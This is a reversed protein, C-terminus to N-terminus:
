AGAGALRAMAAATLRALAYLVMSEEDSPDHYEAWYAGIAAAGRNGVPVMQLSKVFTRRYIDQPIRPDMFINPITVGQRNMMVWGSVCIDAPFTQGKWLPSVADEDMYNCHGNENVVFTIGDCGILTRGIGIVAAAIEEITSTENLRTELASLAVAPM